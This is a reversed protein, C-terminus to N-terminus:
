APFISGAIMGIIMAIGLNYEALKPMKESLKILGIMAFGSILAAVLRGGGALIHDSVLYSMAGLMAAGGILGILKPDGKSIKNQLGDLKHTFLASFLLWGSGNLAMVWVSNAYEVVGYDPGGFEVGMAQAGMTSATLETSASGIISLRMWTIPGGVVAMMGLMVIFVAMAPGIASIARIRFASTAEKRTMNAVSGSKVARRAFLMAQIASLIIVPACMVWLWPDNAIKLYDSM